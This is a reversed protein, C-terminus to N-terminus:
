AKTTTEVWVDDIIQVDEPQGAGAGVVVAGLSGRSRDGPSESESPPSLPQGARKTPFHGLDVTGSRASARKQNTLFRFNRRAPPVHGIALEDLIRAESEGEVLEWYGACVDDEDDPAAATSSYSELAVEAPAHWRWLGYEDLHLGQRM